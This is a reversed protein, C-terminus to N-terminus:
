HQIRYSLYKKRFEQDLIAKRAFWPVIDGSFFISPNIDCEIWCGKCNLVKGRIEAARPGHWIESFTQEPAKGAIEDRLVSCAVVAGEPFLRFHAFMAMCPPRPAAHDFLVRNRGGENLYDESLDRLFFGTYGARAASAASNSKLLKHREHFTEIEARTMDDQPEFPLARSATEDSSMSKGEHYRAGLFASYGLGLGAALEHLPAMQDLTSKMVTQNVGAHFDHKKKLEALRRLTEVAADKMGPVGRLRDHEGNLADLSVQIQLRAKGGAVAEVLEAARDPFAGNTTVYFFRCCTASDVHRYIEPLDPRLFPEGGTIRTVELKKLLPDKIFKGFDSATLEAGASTNWTHIDCMACLANCRNTVNYTM